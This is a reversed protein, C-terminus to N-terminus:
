TRDKQLEVVLAELRQVQQELWAVRERLETVEEEVRVVQPLPISRVVSQVSEDILSQVEDLNRQVMGRMPNMLEEQQQHARERIREVEQQTKERFDQVPTRLKSILDTPSQIILRLTNLPLARRDRKEEEFLIQALTVRTLDEGSKNDIITVEDGNRVMEAIEELTVYSSQTTDYLKRNSYRKIMRMPLSGHGFPLQRTAGHSFSAARLHVLYELVDDLSSGECFM